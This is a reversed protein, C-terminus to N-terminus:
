SLLNDIKIDRFFQKFDDGGYDNPDGWRCKTIKFKFREDFHGAFHASYIQSTGFKTTLSSSNNIINIYMPSILIISNNNDYTSGGITRIIQKNHNPDTGLIDDTDIFFCSNSVKLSKLYSVDSIVEKKNVHKFIYDILQRTIGYTTPQYGILFIGSDDNISSILDELLKMYGKILSFVSLKPSSDTKIQDIVIHPNVSKVEVKSSM